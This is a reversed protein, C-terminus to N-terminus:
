DIQMDDTMHTIKGAMLDKVLEGLTEYGLQAYLIYDLQRNLTILDNEKIKIAVNKWGYRKYGGNRQQENQHGVAM